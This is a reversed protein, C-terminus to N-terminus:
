VASSRTTVATTVVMSLRNPAGVSKIPVSVVMTLVRSGANPRPTGVSAAATPLDAADRVAARVPSPGRAAADCSGSGIATSSGATTLSTGLIM